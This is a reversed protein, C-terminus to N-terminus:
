GLAVLLAILVLLAGVVILTVAVPTVNSDSITFRNM